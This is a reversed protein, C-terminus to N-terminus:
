GSIASLVIREVGDRAAKLFRYVPKTSLPRVPPSPKPPHGNTSPPQNPLPSLRISERQLAGEERIQLPLYGFQESLTYGDQRVSSYLNNSHHQATEPSNTTGPSDLCRAAREM